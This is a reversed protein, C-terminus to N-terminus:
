LYAALLLVIRKKIKLSHGRKQRFVRQSITLLHCLTRQLVTQCIEPYESFNSYYFLFTKSSIQKSLILFTDETYTRM